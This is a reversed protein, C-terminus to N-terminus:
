RLASLFNAAFVKPSNGLPDFTRQLHDPPESGAFDRHVVLSVIVRHGDNVARDVFPQPFQEWPVGLAPQRLLCGVVSRAERLAPHPNHVRQITSTLKDILNGFPANRDPQHFIPPRHGAPYTIRRRAFYKQTRDLGSNGQVPVRGSRRERPLGLSATTSALRLSVFRPSHSRNRSAGKVIRGM